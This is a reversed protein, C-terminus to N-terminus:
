VSRSNPSIKPKNSNRWRETNAFRGLPTHTQKQELISIQDFKSVNAVKKRKKCEHDSVINKWEM